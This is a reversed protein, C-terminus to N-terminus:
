SGPHCRAPIGQEFVYRVALSRWHKTINKLISARDSLFSRENWLSHLNWLFRLRLNNEVLILLNQWIKPILSRTRLDTFLKKAQPSTQKILNRWFSFEWNKGLFEYRNPHGKQDNESNKEISKRYNRQKVSVLNGFFYSKWFREWKQVGGVQLSFIELRNYWYWRVQNSLIWKFVVKPEKKYCNIIDAVTSRCM